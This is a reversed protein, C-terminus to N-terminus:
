RKSSQQSDLYKVAENLTPLSIITERFEAPLIPLLMNLFVQVMYSVGVFVRIKVQPQIRTELFDRTSLFGRPVFKARSLDYIIHFESEDNSMAYGEDLAIILEEVTWPDELRYCLIDHAPDIWYVNIPM